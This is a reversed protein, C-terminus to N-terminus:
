LTQMVGDVWLLSLRWCVGVTREHTTVPPTVLLTPIFIFILIYTYIYIYICVYMCIYIYISIDIYQYLSVFLFYTYICWIYSIKKGSKFSDM